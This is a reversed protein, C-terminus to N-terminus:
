YASTQLIPSTRLVPRRMWFCGARIPQNMQIEMMRSHQLNEDVDGGDATMDDDSRADSERSPADHMGNWKGEAVRYIVDNIRNLEDAGM